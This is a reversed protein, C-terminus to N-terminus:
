GLARGYEATLLLWQGHQPSGQYPDQVSKVNYEVGALDDRAKWDTTITRTDRDARVTISVLGRGESREADLSESGRAPVIKARRTVRDAWAERWNGAGDSSQLRESFVVLSRLDGAGLAM